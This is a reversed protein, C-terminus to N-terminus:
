LVMDEGDTYADNRHQLLVWPASFSAVLPRHVPLIECSQPPSLEGEKTQERRQLNYLSLKGDKM